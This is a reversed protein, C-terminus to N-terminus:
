KPRKTLPRKACTKSYTLVPERLRNRLANKNCTLVQSYLETVHGSRNLFMYLVGEGPPMLQQGSDSEATTSTTEM